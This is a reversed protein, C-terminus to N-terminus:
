GGWGPMGEGALAREFHEYNLGPLKLSRGFQSVFDSVFLATALRGGEEASLWVPQALDEEPAPQGEERAAQRLEELLEQDDIPYRKAEEKAQPLHLAPVPSCSDTLWCTRIQRRGCTAALSPTNQM